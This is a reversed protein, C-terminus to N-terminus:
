GAMKCILPLLASTIALVGNMVNYATLCTTYNTGFHLMRFLIICVKLYMYM